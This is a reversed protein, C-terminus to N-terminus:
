KITKSVIDEIRRNLETIREKLLAIESIKLGDIQKELVLAQQKLVEVDGLTTEQYKLGVREIKQLRDDCRAIELQLKNDLRDIEVQIKSDIKVGDAMARSEAKIIEEKLSEQQQKMPTVIAAIGTILAVIAIVAGFAKMAGSGGGSDENGTNVTVSQRRRDPDGRRWKMEEQGKLM